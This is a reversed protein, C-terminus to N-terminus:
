LFSRGTSSGAFRSGLAKMSKLLEQPNAAGSPKVELDRERDFPRWPHATRDWDGGGAQAAREGGEGGKKRKKSGKQRELHTELLSKGRAAANYADVAAGTRADRGAAAGISAGGTL